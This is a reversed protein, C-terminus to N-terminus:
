NNEMYDQVQDVMDEIQSASYDALENMQNLTTIMLGKVDYMDNVSAFLSSSADIVPQLLSNAVVQKGNSFVPLSLLWGMVIIAMLGKVGGLLAGAIRNIGSLLRVKSISKIMKRVFFSIINLVIVLILFWAALNAFYAFAANLMWDIVEIQSLTLQPLINQPILPIKYAFNTSLHYSVFLIFIAACLDYLSLIFGDIYSKIVFALMLIIAICNIVITFDASLSIM